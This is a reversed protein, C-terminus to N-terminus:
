GRDDGGDPEDGFPRPDLDEWALWRRLQNRHLGLRKAAGTVNGREARLAEEVEAFTPERRPADEGIEDVGPRPRRGRRARSRASRGVDARRRPGRSRRPARRRAARARQRALGRARLDRGAVPRRAPAADVDALARAALWPIEEVRARLPPLGVEPRGIRFYLDRRFAGDAVAKRVDRTTAACVRM